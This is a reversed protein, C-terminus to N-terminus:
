QLKRQIKEIKYVELVDGVQVPKPTKFQIGCDSGKELEKIDERVHKLSELKTEFLLDDGRIARLMSGAQIKGKIVEAGAIVWSKKDLFIQKLKVAGLEQIRIEPELMGSLIGTLDEILKYIVNYFKLDVRQAQALRRVHMNAEVQFGIVLAESAAAMVVDTDSINGVGFHIVKIAVTDSKIKGLAQTIAELSGKTDAKLVIKLFKMTGKSIQIAIRDTMSGGFVEEKARHLEQIEQLRGKATKEDKVVQLLDGAQPVRDMGSIRAAGSPGVEKLHLGIHDQMTKIRGMCSGIVINDGVRMTGTNILITAVPGLSPDLHSEIVTGVAPRNPNAKLNEMEAVLLIMELLHDIGEGKLASVPAMITKGGWEEPQLGHESLEAKLKDINAGPKDMKNMAVIVPIGAEKAHNIAEITQPKVGEDAAVVLIAIDTAKAGRARMATFAEHGPTDLFTIPKGNKVVQYAGIHQTIGGFETAVVNTNRIVDLLKTKGHDVHGMVSIIPARPVLNKPDEEKLLAKLDGAFLEEATAEAKAQKVEVNLETAVIAATDFDLIQNITAMIGNKMLVRIVDPVPLGCKEAFEKVSLIAPIEVVGTKTKIQPQAKPGRRVPAVRTKKQQRFREQDAAREIAIEEAAVGDVEGVDYSVKAVKTKTIPRRSISELAEEEGRGRGKRRKKPNYYHKPLSSTDVPKAGVARAGLEIRRSVHLSPGSTA